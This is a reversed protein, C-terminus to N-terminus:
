LDVISVRDRDPDAVIAASGDALVSLTGGSISVPKVTTTTAPREDIPIVLRPENPDVTGPDDFSNCASVAMMLAAGGFLTTQRAGINRMVAGEGRPTWRVGAYSLSEKGEMARPAM